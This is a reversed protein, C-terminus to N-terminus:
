PGYTEGAAASEYSPWRIMLHVGHALCLVYLGWAWSGAGLLSLVLGLVGLSQGTSAVAIAAAAARTGPSPTAPAKSLMMRELVLSVVYDAVGLALFVPGLLAVTGAPLRASVKIAAGILPMVVLGTLYLAMAIWRATTLSM